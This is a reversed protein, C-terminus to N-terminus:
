DKKCTNMHRPTICQQKPKFVLSVEIESRFVCALLRIKGQLRFFKSFNQANTKYGHFLRLCM